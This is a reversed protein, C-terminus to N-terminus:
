SQPGNGTNFLTHVSACFSLRLEPTSDIQVSYRKNSRQGNSSTRWDPRSYVTHVIGLSMQATRTSLEWLIYEFCLSHKLTSIIQYRGKRKSEKRIVDQFLQICTIISWINNRQESEGGGWRRCSEFFKM